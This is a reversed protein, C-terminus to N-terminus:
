KRDSGEVLKFMPNYGSLLGGDVLFETGTIWSSKDSALFLAANAIDNPTGVRGLPYWEKVQAFITPNKDIREQWADTAVTGPVLTNCRIGNAGYRMAVTRTLVHIGGKSVSYSDSGIMAKANVTGLNIISGSKREIMWPLVTRITLFPATLNVAMTKNWSELSTNLFDTPDHFMANNVLVDIQGFDKKIQNFTEILKTESTLDCFYKNIASKNEHDSNSKDLNAQDIDIVAVKAAFNAFQRVMEEGIGRAGGTVIVVKGSLDALFESM